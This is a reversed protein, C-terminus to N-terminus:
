AAQKNNPTQLNNM